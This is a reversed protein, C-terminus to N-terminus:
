RQMLFPNTKPDLDYRWTIPAHAATLVPNEYRDYIGNGGASTRNRQALLKEQRKFLNQVSTKFEAGTM